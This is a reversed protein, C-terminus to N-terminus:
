LDPEVEANLCLAWRRDTPGRRPDAPDLLSPPVSDVRAAVGLRDLRGADAFVELVWGVRRAAAVPYLGAVEAIQDGTLGSETHLDAIVTAANDLGAALQLDHAVDLATVAPTSYPVDGGYGRVPQTPVLGVRERRHFDMRVRGAKRSAINRSVAVQFVQAAHQAAGHLAAATLWGVYYDFGLHEALDGILENGPPGGQPRYQPAVPVWLGRGLAVWEGRRVPRALRQRVQGPPSGLLEALEDTTM